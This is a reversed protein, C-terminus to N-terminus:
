IEGEIVPWRLNPTDVRHKSKRGSGSGSSRNFWVSYSVNLWQMAQSLNCAETQVILHYHNDMLVYVQVHLAYREAM